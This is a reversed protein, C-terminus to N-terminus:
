VLKSLLCKTAVSSKIKIKVAVNAQLVALGELWTQKVLEEPMKTEQSNESRYIESMRGEERM